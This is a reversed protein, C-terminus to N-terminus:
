DELLYTPVTFTVELGQGDPRTRAWIRGGQAEVLRKCVTLGIGLGRSRTALHQDRYFPEFILETQQDTVGTGRDLVSVRTERGAQEARLVVPHDVPSYKHANSLLNRVVQALYSANASVPELQEPIELEISRAPFQRAFQAVVQNVVRQVLVPETTLPGKQDMRALVMLDEIIRYLRDSELEIDTLLAEMSARDLQSGRSRLIRAGGYISTIPTRLEHSVLALFEDKSENAQRLTEEIRKRETIDTSISCLGYLVGGSDELPFKVSLYTLEGQVGPLTEELELPARTELVTRDHASFMEALDAPLIEMESRGIARERPVGLLEEFRKNVLLFRGAVDKLYVVAPSNDLIARLRHESDQLAERVRVRESADRIFATFLPPGDLPLRTIAVEVPVERGHRDLGATEIQRGLWVGEGTQLYRAFGVRHEERLREPILDQVPRGILEVQQYGFIAAAAQNCQVVRGGADITVVGGPVAELVAHEIAEVTMENQHQKLIM